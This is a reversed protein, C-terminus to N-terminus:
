KHGSSGFIDLGVQFLEAETVSTNTMKVDAYYGLISSMSAANDKSFLIFHSTTVVGNALSTNVIITNSNFDVNTIEGIEVVNSSNVNFGATSTTPVYYATDGVSVSVNLPDGFTLTLNPM